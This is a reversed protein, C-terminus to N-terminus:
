RIGYERVLAILEAQMKCGLRECVKKRLSEM